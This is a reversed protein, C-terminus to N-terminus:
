YVSLLHPTCIFSAKMEWAPGDEPLFNPIFTRITNQHYEMLLNPDRGKQFPLYKTLAQRSSVGKKGTKTYPWLFWGLLVHLSTIGVRVM